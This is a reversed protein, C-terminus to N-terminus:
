RWHTGLMNLYSCIPTISEHSLPSKKGWSERRKFNNTEMTHFMGQVEHLHLITHGYFHLRQFHQEHNSLHSGYDLTVHTAELKSLAITNEDTPTCLTLTISFCFTFTSKYCFAVQSYRELSGYICFFIGLQSYHSSLYTKVKSDGLRKLIPSFTGLHM